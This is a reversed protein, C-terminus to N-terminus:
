GGGEMCQFFVDMDEVSRVVRAFAGAKNMADIEAKQHPEAHKGPVKVELGFMRGRYCGIFDPVGKLPSTGRTKTRVINPGAPVRKFWLDGDLCKAELWEKIAAQIEGEPTV